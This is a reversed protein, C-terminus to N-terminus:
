NLNGDRIDTIRISNNGAISNIVPQYQAYSTSYRKAASMVDQAAQYQNALLTASFEM